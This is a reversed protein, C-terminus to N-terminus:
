LVCPETDDLEERASRERAYKVEREAEKQLDNAEAEELSFGLAATAATKAATIVESPVEKPSQGELQKLIEHRFLQRWLWLDKSVKVPGLKEGKKMNGEM